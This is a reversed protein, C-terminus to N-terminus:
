WAAPGIGPFASMGPLPTFRGDDWRGFVFKPYPCEILAHVGTPGLSFVWCMESAPPNAPSERGRLLVRLLRGSRLSWEVIKMVVAPSQGSGVAALTSAIVARGDPTIFASEPISYGTLVPLPPLPLTRANLLNGGRGTVDLLRYGTPRSPAPHAPVWSFLVHGDGDWAIWMPYGAPARTAWTRTAGTKLSIVRIKSYQCDNGTCTQSEIAIMNGGPSLAVYNVSEPVTIRLRSIRGSHGDAALRLLLLASGENILFTQDNASATISQAGGPRWSFRVKTLVRGTASDRVVATAVPNDSSGDQLIVYYPPMGRSAQRGPSRTAMSVGTIVGIVAALAAVPAV